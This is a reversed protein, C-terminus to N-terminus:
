LLSSEHDGSLKKNKTKTMALAVAGMVGAREDLQSGVIEIQETPFMGVREDVTQRVKDLLGDGFQAVGGGIVVLDPHLTSITNALAIGVYEAAKEVAERIAFDDSAAISMMKTNVNSGNGNVLGRLKSALGIQMLRTGEAAIAPGSALTELCGRNGCGCRPGNPLLTQHGIEGAAGLPGLRLRGDIVVGGGVGTGLSLFVMTPQSKGRGHGFKLEGLTATRADNLVGVNCDFQKALIEAVSVDRWQTPLNPLFKTVGNEIDVLGPVGIGIAEIQNSEHDTRSILETLFDSIRGLVKTPGQHAETPISGDVLLEGNTTAIAAKTNTGGLDVGAVIGLSTNVM